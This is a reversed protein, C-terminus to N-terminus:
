RLDLAKGVFLKVFVEAVTLQQVPHCKFISALAAFNSIKALSRERDTVKNVDLAAPMALLGFHWTRSV